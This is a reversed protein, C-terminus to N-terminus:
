YCRYIVSGDEDLLIILIEFVYYIYCKLLCKLVNGLLILSKNELSEKNIIFKIEYFLTISKFSNKNSKMFKLDSKVDKIAKYTSYLENNFNFTIFILNNIKKLIEESKYFSMFNFNFSSIIKWNIMNNNVKNIYKTPKILIKINSIPASYETYLISNEEIIESETGDHVYINAYILADNPFIMQGNKKYFSFKIESLDLYDRKIEYFIDDDNQNTFNDFLDKINKIQYIENIDDRIYFIEKTYYFFENKKNSSNSFFKYSLNFNDLKIPESIKKYINISSVCNLLFMDKSLHFDLFIDDSFSFIIDLENIYNNYSINTFEIFNFKSKFTSFDNLLRMGAHSDPPIGDTDIYENFTSIKFDDIRVQTLENSFKNYLYIKTNNDFIIDMLKTSKNDRSNIFLKLKNYNLIEFFNCGVSKLNLIISSKLYENCLYRDKEFSIHDIKFPLLRLESETSFTCKIKNDNELFVETGKPITMDELLSSIQREDYSFQIITKSPIPLNSIPCINDLINSEIQQTNRDIQQQIKSTLFAFSELLLNIHPDNSGKDTLNIEKSFFPHKKNFLEFSDILSNLEKNFYDKNNKQIESSMLGM